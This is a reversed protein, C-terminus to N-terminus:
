RKMEEVLGGAAECRQDTDERSLVAGRGEFCLCTFSFLMLGDRRSTSALVVTANAAGRTSLRMESRWIEDFQV